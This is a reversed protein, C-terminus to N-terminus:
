GAQQRVVSACYQFNKEPFALVEARKVSFGLVECAFYFKSGRDIEELPHGDRLPVSCSIVTWDEAAYRALLGGCFISEDDPHAVVVARRM